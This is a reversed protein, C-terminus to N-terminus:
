TASQCLLSKSTHDQGRRADEKVSFTVVIVAQSSESVVEYQIINKQRRQKRQTSKDKQIQVPFNKHNNVPERSHAEYHGTCWWNHTLYSNQRHNIMGSPRYDKSNLSTILKTSQKIANNKVVILAM